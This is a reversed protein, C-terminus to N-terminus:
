GYRVRPDLAAYAVDVALNLIVVFFAGILVTGQIVPLDGRSIADYSLRGVGPINFVTEVLIAGGLLVGLDLGALTVLPTIANRLAHHTIVRREPLGKARATRIHDEALTALLSARLLRAYIAAFAAALVLWPLLMSTFWRWPDDTLPVYSGAGPFVHVTGTGQAAALLAVLGLWYVPASVFLLTTGMAVRDVASGRRVACLTGIGIGAGLWLVAAGLALGITAPLRSLVESRVSTGDLYSTGFDLHLVIGTLYIWYQHLISRNLGLQERIAALVAPDRSRGARLVAPDGAPLVYFVVFTLTSVLFLLVVVWVLRRIVYRAV